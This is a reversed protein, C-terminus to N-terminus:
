GKFSCDSGYKREKVATLFGEFLHRHGPEDISFEPHWQVAVAWPHEQHEMAEILNDASFAAQQWAPPISRIAQHHWSLVSLTSVQTMAELRTGAIVQVQHRIPKQDPPSYHDIEGFEDPVHPYLTGGCVVNLIQMGRCIGLIPIDSKLAAQTLALEFQDREQCVYRVAPHHKGGYIEPDIDGGGSLVLGDVVQLLSNINPEGPALLVPVGGVARIAELYNAALCFDGKANRNRTTIGIIPDPCNM